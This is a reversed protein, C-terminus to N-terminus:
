RAVMGSASFVLKRCGLEDEDELQRIGDMIV